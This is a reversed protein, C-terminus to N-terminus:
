KADLLGLKELEPPLKADILGKLVEPDKPHLDHDRDTRWVEEYWKKFDFEDRHSYHTIKSWVEEDTRSWSFHYLDIPLLVYGSGVVRNDVFKVRPKVLILQQYDTHPSVEKDKYFVRQHRVIGAQLEPPATKVIAQLDSWGEDDLFEDPDLIIVWDFDSFYEQGANRQDTENKWDDEIVSAGMDRAIQATEDQVEKEGKWPTKSVLVLTEDVWDPIHSLFPKILRQENFCITVLGVRM